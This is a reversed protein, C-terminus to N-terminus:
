RRRVWAGSTSDMVLGAEAYVERARDEDEDAQSEAAREGLCRLTAWVPGSVGDGPGRRIADRVKWPSEFGAQMAQILAGIDASNLALAPWLERALQRALRRILPDRGGRTTPEATRRTVTQLGAERRRQVRRREADAARRCALGGCIRRPRGSARQHLPAWCYLCHHIRGNHMGLLIPACLRPQAGAM